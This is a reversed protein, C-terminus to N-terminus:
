KSRWNKKFAGWFGLGYTFDHIHTKRTLRDKIISAEETSQPHHNLAAERGGTCNCLFLVVAHCPPQAPVTQDDKPTAALARFRYKQYDPYQEPQEWDAIYWGELTSAERCDQCPSIHHTSSVAKPSVFCFLFCSPKSCVRHKEQWSRTKIPFFFRSSLFFDVVQFSSISETQMGAAQGGGVNKCRWPLM